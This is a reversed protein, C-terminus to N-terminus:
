RSCPQNCRVCWVSRRVRAGNIAGGGCVSRKNVRVRRAAWEVCVRMKGNIGGVAAGCKDPVAAGEARTRRKATAPTVCRGARRCRQWRVAGTVPKYV